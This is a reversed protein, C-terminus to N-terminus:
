RSLAPPHGYRAAFECALRDLVADPQVAPYSVSQVYSLVNSATKEEDTAGPYHWLVANMIVPVERNLVLFEATVDALGLEGAALRRALDRKYEIRDAHMRMRVAVAQSLATMDEVHDSPPPEGAPNAFVLAAAALLSAPVTLVPMTLHRTPFRLM